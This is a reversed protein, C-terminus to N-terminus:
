VVPRAVTLGYVELVGALLLARASAELTAGTTFVDDVLIIRRGAVQEARAEFADRVNEWREVASLGVQSPTDRRRRLGGRATPLGAAGAFMEAILEAQNYGRDAQRERSLPVPVVLVAPLNLVSWYNALTEGLAQALPQDRDYKLRHIANRLPGDFSALSRVAM